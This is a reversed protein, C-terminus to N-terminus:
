KGQNMIEKENPQILKTKFKGDFKDWVEIFITINVWLKLLKACNQELYQRVFNRKHILHIM